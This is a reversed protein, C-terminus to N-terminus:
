NFRLIRSFLISSYLFCNHMPFFFFWLSRACWLESIKTLSCGVWMCALPIKKEKKELHIQHKNQEKALCCWQPMQLQLRMLVILSHKHKHETAPMSKPLWIIRLAHIARVTSLLHAVSNKMLNSFIVVEAKSLCQKCDLRFLLYHCTWETWVCFPFKHVYNRNTTIPTVHTLEGCLSPLICERWHTFLM